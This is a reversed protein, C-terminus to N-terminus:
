ILGPTRSNESSQLHSNAAQSQKERAAEQLATAETRLNSSHPRSMPTPKLLSIKLELHSRDLRDRAIASSVEENWGNQAGIEVRQHLCGQIM